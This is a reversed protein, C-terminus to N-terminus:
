GFVGCRWFRTRTGKASRKTQVVTPNERSLRRGFAMGSVKASSELSGFTEAPLVLEGASRWKRARPRRRQSRRAAASSTPSGSVVGASHWDRHKAAALLRLRNMPGRRIRQRGHGASNEGERDSRRRVQWRCAEDHGHSWLEGESAGKVDRRCHDGRPGEGGEHINRRMSTPIIRFQSNGVLPHHGHVERAQGIAKMQDVLEIVGVMREIGRGNLAFDVDKLLLLM